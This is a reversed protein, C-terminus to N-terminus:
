IHVVTEADCVPCIQDLSEKFGVSRGPDQCHTSRSIVGGTWKGFITLIVFYVYKFYQIYQIAAQVM